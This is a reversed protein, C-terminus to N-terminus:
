DSYLHYLLRSFFVKTSACVALMRRTEDFALVFDQGIKDRNLLKKHRQRIIAGEIASLEELFVLFNGTRDDVVLLLKNKELLQAHSCHWCSTLFAPLYLQPM